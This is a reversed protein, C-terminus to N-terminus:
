DGGGLPELKAQFSIKRPTGMDDFQVIHAGKDMDVDMVTGEGFIAHRVRTGTSFVSGSRNEPM